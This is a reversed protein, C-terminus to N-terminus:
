WFHKSEQSPSREFTTNSKLDLNASRAVSVLTTMLTTWLTLVKSWILILSATMTGLQGLCKWILFINFVVTVIPWFMMKNQKFSLWCPWNTYSLFLKEPIVFVSIDNVKALCGSISNQKSSSSGNSPLVLTQIYTYIFIKFTYSLCQLSPKIFANNYLGLTCFHLLPLYKYM